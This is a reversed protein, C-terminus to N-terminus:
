AGLTQKDTVSTPYIVPGAILYKLLVRLLVGLSGNPKM